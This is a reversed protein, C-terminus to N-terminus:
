FEFISPGIRDPLVEIFPQLVLHRFASGDLFRPNTKGAKTGYRPLNAYTPITLEELGELM